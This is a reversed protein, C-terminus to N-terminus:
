WACSTQPRSGTSGSSPKSRRRRPRTELPNMRVMREQRGFNVQKLWNTVIDRAPDKNEPTVSDELDLVLSDAPLTLSRQLMKENAGPVFHVARRLRAM